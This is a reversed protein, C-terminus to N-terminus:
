CYKAHYQKNMLSATTGMKGDVNYHWSRSGDPHEYVTHPIGNEDADKYMRKYYLTHDNSSTKPDRWFHERAPPNNYLDSKSKIGDDMMKQKKANMYMGYLIGGLLPIGMIHWM